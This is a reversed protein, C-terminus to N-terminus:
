FTPLVILSAPRVFPRFVERQFLLDIDHHQVASVEHGAAGLDTGAEM